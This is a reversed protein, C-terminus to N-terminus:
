LTDAFMGYEDFTIDQMESIQEIRGDALLDALLPESAWFEELHKTDRIRCLLAREPEVHLCSALAVALAERDSVVTLPTRAGEPLKATVVNMYTKVVDVQEVARRLAIDFLGIGTANGETTPTLDRLVLRQIRPDHPLPGDYYRNVVNTDAGIGSIDKGLYDVVLVDIREGPLRPMWDRALKLLEQERDWIRAAPVAEVLALRAHGDEVLALGFPINLRGLTFRAVAPILRDFVVFGHSHITDAGKQKGLGIAIMKMLGSEVPGHFDTHSKIRGIPIVLDAQQAAIRDFWVPVQGIAGADASGLLVTEMSARIPAGVSQETVGYEALVALQGEATAGGHSGMAPVVFPEGGLRRVAVVAGRLVQDIRDIGRSGGTLAVRAGPRIAAQIEPRDFQAAVAAAVDPLAAAHLRQRARAWRPLRGREFLDLWM